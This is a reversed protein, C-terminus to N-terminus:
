LNEYFSNYFYFHDYRAFNLQTFNGQIFTVNGVGLLEKAVESHKVLDKRQEVGYYFANPQHHAAVLCFKGAGSGIDLVRVNNEAALFAAAEKAVILPTWHKASLSQIHPPYVRNFLDDSDFWEKEIM